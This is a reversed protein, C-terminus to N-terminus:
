QVNVEVFPMAPIPAGNILVQLTFSDYIQVHITCKALFLAM